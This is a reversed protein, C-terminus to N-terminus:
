RNDNDNAYDERYPVIHGSFEPLFMASRGSCEWFSYLFSSGRKPISRCRVKRGRVCEVILVGLRGNQDLLVKDGPKLKKIWDM